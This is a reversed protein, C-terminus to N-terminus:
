STRDLCAQRKRHPVDLLTPHRPLQYGVDNTVVDIASSDGSLESWDESVKEGCSM